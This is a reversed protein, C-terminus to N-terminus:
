SFVGVIESKGKCHSSLAHLFAYIHPQKWACRHHESTKGEHSM